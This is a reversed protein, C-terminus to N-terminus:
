FGEVLVTTIRRYKDKFAKTILSTYVKGKYVSVGEVESLGVVGNGYETGIKNDPIVLEELECTANKKDIKPCTKYKIKSVGEGYHVGNKYLEQVSYVYDGYLEIGQQFCSSDGYCM